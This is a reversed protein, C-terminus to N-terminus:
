GLSAIIFDLASERTSFLNNKNVKDSNKMQVTTIDTSMVYDDGYWIGYVVGNVPTNNKVYWVNDGLKVENM